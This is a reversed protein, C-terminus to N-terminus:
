EIKVSFRNKLIGALRRVFFLLIALGIFLLSKEILILPLHFNLIRYLIVNKIENNLEYNVNKTFYHSEGFTQSYNYTRNLGEYCYDTLINDLCVVNNQGYEDFGGSLLSIVFLISFSFFLYQLTSKLRKFLSNKNIVIETKKTGM